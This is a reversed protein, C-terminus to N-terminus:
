NFKSCDEQTARQKSKHSAQDEESLLGFGRLFGAQLQEVEGQTM